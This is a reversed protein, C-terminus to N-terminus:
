VPTSNAIRKLPNINKANLYASANYVFYSWLAPHQSDYICQEQAIDETHNSYLKNKWKLVPVGKHVALRQILM